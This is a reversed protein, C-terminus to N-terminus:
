KAPGEPAPPTALPAAGARHEIYIDYKIKKGAANLQSNNIIVITVDGKSTGLTGHGSGNLAITSSSTWAYRKFAEVGDGKADEEKLRIFVVKDPWTAAATQQQAEALSNTKVLIANLQDMVDKHNAYAVERKAYDPFNTFAKIGRMVCRGMALFILGMLVIAFVAKFKM